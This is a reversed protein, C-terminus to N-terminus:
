AKEGGFHINAKDRIESMLRCVQLATKSSLKYKDDASNRIFKEFEAAEFGMLEPKSYEPIILEKERNINYLFVNILKSISEIHITGEDGFIESGSYDQGTKSHTFTILKDGYNFSVSGSADAGSDLFVADATIRDPIGFLDVAPYVCYIGLDMLSGTAMVPNFINPNEGRLYAPYKSSLQSFDFHASTIRGIKKINDRLVERAPTHMYMIAELYILGKEDALKKCDEYQDPTVTVPKECIVHKGAELCKKSQPYHMVNPSAI